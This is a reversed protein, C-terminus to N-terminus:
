VFMKPGKHRPRSVLSHLLDDYAIGGAIETELDLDRLDRDIEKFARLSEIDYYSSYYNSRASTAAHSTPMDRLTFRSSGFIQPNRTNKHSSVHLLVSYIDSTQFSSLPEVNTRPNPPQKFSKGM